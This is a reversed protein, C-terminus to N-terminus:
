LALRRYIHVLRAPLAEVRDIVTYAVEGYMRSLYQPGAPDVTICFPHIGAKRAERLAVRTDEQAYKDFYHDCGCDLPKGDSLLLLLRQRAPWAALRATAHRIAAGDRNEMKFTMRGVRQRARADWPDAFDKAVYFTVHERGYGSFGWVAFPDGLVSLAEAAVILAEKEVDIVRRSVGDAAENTSSSMDLLFAVAVDRAERHHRAYLRDSPTRGARRDVHHDIVRDIDLEDGDPLNRVRVLGQPRLAEFRRRLQDISVRHRAMAQDVFARNGERLSQERVTVWKPKYDQIAADWERYVWARGVSDVDPDTPAGEAPAMPADPREAREVVAGGPAEQRDLMAEMAAVDVKREAQREAERLQKRADSRDGEDGAARMRALIRQAEEEVRREEAGAAEPAIRPALPSTDLPQYGDEAPRPTSGPDSTPVPRNRQGQRPRPGASQGGPMPARPPEDDVHRLLAEVGAYAGHIARAIEAVGLPDDAQAGPPATGLHAGVQLRALLAEFPAAAAAERRDLALPAGGIARRALAEVVRAASTKPAAEPRRLASAMHDLDRAVGPYTRRLLGRVRADELVQFLDRALSRNPFARLFREVETEGERRAPWPADIQSLDLNFTGFELYGAALATQVKYLLFDRDDGFTDIRDPLYIHHGDSFAAGSGARVEVDEGCHARAYLTLTRRVEELATGKRLARAAAQGVGSERRLFSEAKQWSEMHLALAQAVFRQLPEDEMSGLLEPLTRLMLPVAEPRVALIERLFIVYAGRRDERVRALQDPMSAAVIRALEPDRQAVGVVFSTYLEAAEPGIATEVAGRFRLWTRLAGGSLRALQVVPVTRKLAPLGAGETRVATLRTVAAEIRGGGWWGRRNAM